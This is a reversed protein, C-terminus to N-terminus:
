LNKVWAEYKKQQMVKRESGRMKFVGTNYKGKVIAEVAKISNWKHDELYKLPGQEAESLLMNAAIEQRTLLKQLVYQAAVHMYLYNRACYPLKQFNVGRAKMLWLKKAVSANKINDPDLTGMFADRWISIFRGKPRTGFWWNEIIPCWTHQFARINYGVFEFTDLKNEALMPVPSLLLISADSWIGGHEALVNIRVIDSERTASTNWPIDAPKVSTYQSLNNPTLVIVTYDPHHQRWSDVCKQVVLPLKDGKWYTWIIKPAPTVSVPYSIFQPCTEHELTFANYIVLAIILVAAAIAFALGIILVTRSSM